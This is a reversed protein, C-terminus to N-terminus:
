TDHSSFGSKSTPVDIKDTRQQRPQVQAQQGEEKAHHRQQEGLQRGAATRCCAPCAPQQDQEHEQVHGPPFQVAGPHLVERWDIIVVEVARQNGTEWVLRQGRQEQQTESDQAQPSTHEQEGSTIDSPRRNFRLALHCTASLLRQTAQAPGLAFDGRAGDAQLREERIPPTGEPPQEADHGKTGKPLEQSGAYLLENVLYHLLRGPQGM